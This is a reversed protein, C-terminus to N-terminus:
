NAAIMLLFFSASFSTGLGLGNAVCYDPPLTIKVSFITGFLSSHDTVANTILKEEATTITVFELLQEPEQEIFCPSDPVCELPHAFSLNDIFVFINLVKM